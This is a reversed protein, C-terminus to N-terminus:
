ASKTKSPNSQAIESDNSSDPDGNTGSIEPKIRKLKRFVWFGFVLCIAIAVWHLRRSIETVVEPPLAEGIFYGLGLMMFVSVMAAFLDALLFEHFPIKLAGATAFTLSRIPFLHRGMFIYLLRNKRLGSQVKDIREQTIGPFWSSKKGAEVMGPGFHYGICYVILDGIIVGVYCTLFIAGFRVVKRGAAIGAFLLPLDEPIPFGIGGLILAIFVWVHLNYGGESSLYDILQDQV